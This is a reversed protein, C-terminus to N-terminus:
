ESPSERGPVIRDGTAMQDVVLGGTFGARVSEVAERANAASDYAEAGNAVIRGTDALARWRWQYSRDRYLQVTM